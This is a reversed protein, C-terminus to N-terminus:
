QVSVLDGASEAGPAMASPDRYGTIKYDDLDVHKLQNVYQTAFGPFMTANFGDDTLYWSQCGSNWTTAQLRRQIDANYRAQVEPRVDLAKWDLRLLKEVAEVIYNIQAEM